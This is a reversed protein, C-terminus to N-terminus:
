AARVKRLFEEIELKMDVASKSLLRTADFVQNAADSTEAVATAVGTVNKTVELTGTAAQECSRAIEKTAAGQEEVASAIATSIQNIRDISAAINRIASVADQTVTRMNEIQASIDDTAKATQNALSKVESAVVAFGKGAEGARAAEITANLALLNTQSAIDNILEVVKGIKQASETLGQVTTDTTRAAEVAKASFDAADNVQRSIEGISASLEEAAAAITQVNAAAEESASAVTSTKHSTGQANSNLGQATHELQTSASSVSSVLEGINERFKATVTAVQQSRNEAERREQDKQSLMRDLEVASEKFVQLASAMIGLEDKRGLGPVEIEKNGGALSRMSDAVALISGAVNSGILWSLVAIVAVALALSALMWFFVTGAVNNIEADAVSVLVSWSLGPYTYAGSTHAFGIAQTVGTEPSNEVSVGSKGSIADRAAAVGKAALDEVGVVAMNRAYTGGTKAPAANVLVKGDKGLVTIEAGVLGRNALSKYFTMVIEEVLKFDAFNVWVGIREGAANKVPAAFVISLGENGYLGGVLENAAPQEVVTGTLGDRGQLFEGALAKRFWSQNAFNRSYIASTDLAKGTPDVTNVALVGGENDLLIMLRYLGYNTMYANMAGVLTNSGTQNRWNQPDWAAANAGFAQVDGYREFLNRDIVDGVATATDKIPARYAAEISDRFSFYVGILLLAPLVGFMLFFAILRSKISTMSFLSSANTM